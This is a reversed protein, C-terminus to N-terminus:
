VWGPECPDRRAGARTLKDPRRDLNGELLGLALDPDALRAVADLAGDLPGDREAGSALGEREDPGREVAVGGAVGFAV